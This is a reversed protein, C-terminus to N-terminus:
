HRPSPKRGRDRTRLCALVTKSLELQRSSAQLFLPVSCYQHSPSHTKELNQLSSQPHFDAELGQSTNLFSMNLSLNWSSPHLTSYPGPHALLCFVSHFGLSLLILMPPHFSVDSSTITQATQLLHM